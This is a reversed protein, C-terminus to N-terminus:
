HKKVILNDLKTNINIIDNKINTFGLSTNKDINTFRIATRKDMNFIAKWLLIESMAVFIIISILTSTDTPSGFMKWIAIALMVIIILWFVIDEIKIKAM